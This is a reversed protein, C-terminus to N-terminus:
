LGSCAARSPALHWACVSRARVSPLLTRFCATSGWHLSSSRWSRSHRWLTMVMRQKAMPQLVIEDMTTIDALPQDKDVRHIEQVVAHVLSEPKVTPSTRVVLHKPGGLLWPFQGVPVYIEPHFGADQGQSLVNGAVGVVTLWPGQGGVRLLKGLPDQGPWYSRALEENVIVVRDGNQTDDDNFARGRRLPIQMTRFYDSGIIVYNAAPVHGAPPNPNDSTTFFQGAWGFIPVGRCVSASEVGPLSDVATVVGDWFEM